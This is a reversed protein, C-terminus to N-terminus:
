DSSCLFRQACRTWAPPPLLVFMPQTGSRVRGSKPPALAALAGWRPKPKGRCLNSLMWTSNRLMSLNRPHQLKCLSMLPQCPAAPPGWFCSVNVNRLVGDLADPTHLVIDRLDPSCLLLPAHRLLHQADVAELCGADVFRKGASALAPAPPPLLAWRDGAINGLCWISQERVNPDAHRLLMALPAVANHDVVVRTHETSAINTLAWAAEFQLKPNEVAGLLQM